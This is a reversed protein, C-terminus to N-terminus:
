YVEKELCHLYEITENNKIKRNENKDAKYRKYVQTYQKYKGYKEMISKITEITMLGENNYSLFVFRFKANNIIEEFATAVKKVSCFDSKQSNGERLGTIGLLKPNDYKSITELLHYNSHYQRANYPPDLYLIDGKIKRICDNANLNYAQGEKGKIIPLPELLLKKLASKKLVKLFAGYVSTTNAVKDIANILSALYFYYTNEDIQKSEFLEQLSQRIADCKQGNEDSFYLRGSGSGACFNNYIFGKKLPLQNFYDFLNFNIKYSGIAFNKCIAYSYNQIDNYIIKAGLKKFNLGVVGTGAFLDAFTIENFNNIGTFDIIKDELFSNLSYKSGIYNM